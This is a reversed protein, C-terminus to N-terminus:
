STNSDLAESSLVVVRCTSLRSLEFLDSASPTVATRGSIVPAISTCFPDTLILVPPPVANVDGNRDVVM